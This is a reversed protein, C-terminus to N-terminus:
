EAVFDAAFCTGVSSNPEVVHAAFLITADRGPHQPPLTDLAFLIMELAPWALPKRGRRRRSGPDSSCATSGFHGTDDCSRDLAFRQIM